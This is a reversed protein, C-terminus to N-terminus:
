NRLPLGTKPCILDQGQLKIPGPGPRTLIIFNVMNPCQEFQLSSNNILDYTISMGRIFRASSVGNQKPGFYYHLLQAVDQAYNELTFLFANPGADFTYALRCNKNHNNYAQVFQIVNQSADNLYQLPPYTDRCIAHLQNSEKMCIEAFSPFDRSLIARKVVDIRKGVVESVRHRLLPSTEVSRQMGDTSGTSKKKGSIVLIFVRLEPWHNEPYLPISISDQGSQVDKGKIWEVFGGHMSRCASGSGRRAIASVDGEVKFLGALSVVFAAYGAASSALGAATPFNNQSCIHVNQDYKQLDRESEGRKM